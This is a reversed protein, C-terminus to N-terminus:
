GEQNIEARNSLISGRHDGFLNIGGDRSFPYVCVCVCKDSHHTPSASVLEGVMTVLIVATIVVFCSGCSDLGVLIVVLCFYPLICDVCAHGEPRKM